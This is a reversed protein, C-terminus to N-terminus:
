PRPMLRFCTTVAGFRPFVRLANALQEIWRIAPLLVGPCYRYFLQYHPPFAFIAGRAAVAEFGAAHFLRLLDAYRFRRHVRLFIDDPLTESALVRRAAQHAKKDFQVTKGSQIRRSLQRLLRMSGHSLSAASPTTLILSGGAKLVRRFEALAQEPRLLHELVESCLLLDFAQNEFRLAEADGIEFAANQCGLEQKLADAFAIASASVDIGVTEQTESALAMSLLGAGCGIELMRRAPLAQRILPLLVEVRRAFTYRTGPHTSYYGLYGTGIEWDLHRARLEYLQRLQRNTPAAEQIEPALPALEDRIMQGFDAVAAVHRERAVKEVAPRFASFIADTRMCFM